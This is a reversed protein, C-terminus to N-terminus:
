LCGMPGGLLLLCVVGERTSIFGASLGLAGSSLTLIAKSLSQSLTMGLANAQKLYEGYLRQREQRDEIESRGSVSGM